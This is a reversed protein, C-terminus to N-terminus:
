VNQYEVQSHNPHITHDVLDKLRVEHIMVTRPAIVTFKTFLFFFSQFLGLGRSLNAFAFLMTKKQLRKRRDPSAYNWDRPKAHLLDLANKATCRSSFTSPDARCPIRQREGRHLRLRLSMCVFALPFDFLRSFQASSQKSPPQTIRKRKLNFRKQLSRRVYM